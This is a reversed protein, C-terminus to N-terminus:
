TEEDTQASPFVDGSLAAGASAATGESAAAGEAPASDAQAEASGDSGAQKAAEAEKKAKEEAERKAKEAALRQKEARTLLVPYRPYASVLADIEFLRGWPFEASITAPNLRLEKQAFQQLQAIMEERVAASVPKSPDDDLIEQLRILHKRVNAQYAWNDIYQTLLMQKHDQESMDQSLIAQAISYGITNSATNWGNYAKISYLLDKESLLRMLTNDAGNAFYVDLIAVPVGRLCAEEVHNIFETTSEKLMGFNNFQGSEGTSALPTNVALLIDPQKNTMVGGAAIVHQEITQGIPQSEYTPVTDEARGLPYLTSFTPKLHNSDVHYRAILLLALQDAGPFSGYVKSSLGKSVNKLYRAELASQSNPSSDDFGLCFYAFTGDRADRILRQNIITNKTRRKFWDQLYETPVSLKLSLLEASEATTITGMDMKDQLASIRYIATGYDAYYYPEVGNGSAYPTRMITGFAYLPIHPYTRHLTRIRTERKTLEELTDNHKRSDVLGGYILTDTSLVAADAQAINKQVWAWVREPDGQYNRGSLLYSPPTIVTYGAKEATDVVYSLSVPRDDQPVLLLTKASATAGTMFALITISITICLKHWKM